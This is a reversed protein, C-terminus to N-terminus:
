HKKSLTHYKLTNLKEIDIVFFVASKKWRLRKRTEQFYKPIIKDSKKYKRPSIFEYVRVFDNDAAPLM